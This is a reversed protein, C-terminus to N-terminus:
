NLLPCAPVESMIPGFFTQVEVKIKQKTLEKNCKIKVVRDAINQKINDAGVIWWEAKVLEKYKSKSIGIRSYNHEEMIDVIKKAQALRSEVEGDNFYGSFTGSARHFMFTADSTMLREGPYAEVIASAMSAAFITITKINDQTDLFRILDMGAAISGGPSNIVLYLTKKEDKSRLNNITDMVQKVSEDTVVSRLNITNDPTLLISETPLLKYELKNVVNACGMGTMLLIISMLFIKALLSLLKSM